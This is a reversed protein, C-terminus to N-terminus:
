FSTFNVTSTVGASVSTTKSQTTHGSASATVTYNGIPIYGSLYHGTSDTTLTVTTAIQGGTIKISVGSVGTGSSNTVAGGIKGATSLQFNLTTTAGGTVSATSSRSLYGSAKATFTYTGAPIGSLTYAGATNTTATATGGSFGVVAGSIASGTKLSTVAGTVTGSGTSAAVLSFNATTTAGASVSVSMTSSQFGTASATVSVTGIPVNNLTYAGSAGTTTSVGGGSVTAGAIATGDSTRFVGGSVTGTTIPTLAFNATSNGGSSLTITQQANQYGNASAMITVATGAPVNALTYTGDSATTTTQGGGSVAAGSIAAKTNVNTVTGTVTGTGSASNAVLAFNAIAEGGASLSVSQSASQYGTASATVTVAAGAPVNALTYTGDAATSTSVGGASVTAGNIPSTTAVDTVSGTVTGTTVAGSSCNACIQIIAGVSPVGSSNVLFLMYYGPPAINASAPATVNLGGSASAKNLPILRQDYNQAHTVVGVRIFSIKTISSADPTSVFFTQGYNIGSPASSITPRAGKFLYPPSFLSANPGGINGGASLVRGDPLLLATSHYGRYKQAPDSAMSTFAGTGPNWIEPTYVPCNSPDFGGCSGGGTVLVTGDPLVTANHQRRNYHMSGTSTWAPTSSNLNIIEATAQPTTGSTSGGGGIYIVKGIDYMAASGYDRPSHVLNGVSSWSGTGSTSLYRSPSNPGAYFVQGNPAVFMRPYLPLALTASSLNRLSNTGVQYVQPLTNVNTNSNIDGSIILVDGNPLTTNTPYWRGLNMEPGATWTNNRWDYIITHTFGTYDAIHGGAVFLRGDTLLAQGACFLSYPVSQAATVTNTAPDWIQPNLAESYYSWFLVKGNPLLNVHVGRYPWTQLSSWQGTTSQARARPLAFCLVLLLGLVLSKRRSM